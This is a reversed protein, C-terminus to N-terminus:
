WFDVEEHPRVAPPGAVHGVGAAPQARVQFDGNHVSYLSHFFAVPSPVNQYFSRKVRLGLSPLQLGIRAWPPTRPPGAGPALTDRCSSHERGALPPGAEDPSSGSKGRAPDLGARPTLGLM